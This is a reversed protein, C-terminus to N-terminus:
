IAEEATFSITFHTRQNSSVSIESSALRMLSAVNFTIVPADDVPSSRLFTNLPITANGSGDSDVSGTVTYFHNGIQIKDGRVLLGTQNITWGDTNVSEGTQSAGKVLPSDVFTKQSGEPSVRDPDILMFTNTLDAADELFGLWDNAQEKTMPPMTVTAKYIGGAHTVTQKQFTFLSGKSASARKFSWRITAINPTLTPLLIVAM